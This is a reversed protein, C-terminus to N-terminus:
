RLSQRQRRGIWTLGALGVGLLGLPAPEPVTVTYSNRVSNLASVKKIRIAEEVELATVGPGFTDSDTLLSANNRLLTLLFTGEDSTPDEIDKDVRVRGTTRTADMEMEAGTISGSTASVKYSLNLRKLGGGNAIFASSTLVFGDAVTTVTYLSLNGSLKKLKNVQFDSFTLLGNDSQFSAVSGNVLDDLTYTAAAAPGAILLAVLSALAALKRISM